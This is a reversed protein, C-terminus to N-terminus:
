STILSFCKKRKFCVSIKQKKNETSNCAGEEGDCNLCRIVIIAEYSTRKSVCASRSLLNPGVLCMYISYCRQLVTRKPRAHRILEIDPRLFSQLLVHVVIFSFFPDWFLTMNTARIARNSRTKDHLRWVFRQWLGRM